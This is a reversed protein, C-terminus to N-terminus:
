FLRIEQRVSRLDMEFDLNIVPPRSYYWQFAHTAAPGLPELITDVLYEHPSFVTYLSVATVDALTAGLGDLRKTIMGMVVTAKERLADPSTDGERIISGGVLEGAGAAVFSPGASDSPVTYSFAYLSPEAPPAVAPAVNTRAIPNMGDVLLKRALIQEQYGGNFVGFDAMSFPAPSRLEIAALAATPRGLGALHADILAFGERYPLPRQLTARVMEFGPMAASGESFAAGGPLFRFGGAPNDIIPM